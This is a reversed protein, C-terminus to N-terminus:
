DAERRPLRCGAADPTSALCLGHSVRGDGPKGHQHDVVIVVVQWFGIGMVIILWAIVRIVHVRLFFLLLRDFLSHAERDM